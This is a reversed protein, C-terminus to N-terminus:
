FLGVADRVGDVGRLGAPSEGDDAIDSVAVVDGLQHLLSSLKAIALNMDNDIVSPKGPITNNV